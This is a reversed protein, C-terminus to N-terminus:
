TVVVTYEGPEAPMLSQDNAGEILEGNLFWTYLVGEQAMLEGNNFDLQNSPLTAITAVTEIEATCLPNSLTILVPYIGSELIEMDISGTSNEALNEDYEWSYSEIYDQTYDSTFSEGECAVYGGIPVSTDISSCEFITHQYTNTIIAPNLDFYIEAFNNIEDGHTLGAIPSITYVVYGQSGPEDTTSDPLQINDFTFIVKGSADVSTTFDHSAFLPNFTSMDLVNLDLQDEIVVTEAPANGTNQFRIRYEIQTDNLVFHPEEYGAPEAYKDNPDYACTVQPELVWEGVTYLENESNYLEFQMSIPFVQGILDTGPGIIHTQYLFSEGPQQNEVIWTMVGDEFSSFPVAGNLDEAALIPDFTMTFVGDFPVNGSNEVWLGPNFGNQCHINM